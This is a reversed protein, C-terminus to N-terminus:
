DRMTTLKGLKLNVIVGTKSGNVLSGYKADRNQSFFSNLSILLVLVCNGKKLASISFEFEFEM